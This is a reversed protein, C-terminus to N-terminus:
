SVSVCELARGIFDALAEVSNFNSFDFSEFDIMIAFEDELMLVFNIMQISDLGIDTIIDTSGSTKEKLSADGTVEVLLDKIKEINEVSAGM